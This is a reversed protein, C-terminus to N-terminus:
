PLVCCAKVGGIVGAMHSQLEAMYGTCEADGDIGLAQVALSCHDPPTGATQWCPGKHSTWPSNCQAQGKMKKYHLRPLCTQMQM